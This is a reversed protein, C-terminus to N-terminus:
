IKEMDKMARIMDSKVLWENLRPPYTTPGCELQLLPSEYTIPGCELQFLPSALLYKQSIKPDPPYPYLYSISIFIGELM